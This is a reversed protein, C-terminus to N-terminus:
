YERYELNVMKGCFDLSSRFIDGHKTVKVGILVTSHPSQIFIFSGDYNTVRVIPPGCALAEELKIEMVKEELSCTM